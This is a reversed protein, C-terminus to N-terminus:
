QREEELLAMKLAKLFHRRRRSPGFVSINDMHEFVVEPRGIAIHM